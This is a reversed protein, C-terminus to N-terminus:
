GADGEPDDAATRWTALRRLFAEFSERLLTDRQSQTLGELKSALRPSERMLFERASLVAALMRPEVSDVHVLLGRKEALDMELMENQLRFNRDRQSEGQVKHVERDVMWKICTASDYESPAGAGGRVAVPMGEAQWNAIAQHSVGFLDAIGQVGSIMM